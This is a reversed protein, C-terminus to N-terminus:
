RYKHEVPQYYKDGYESAQKSNKPGAPQQVLAVAIQFSEIHEMLFSAQKPTLRPVKKCLERVAKSKKAPKSLCESPSLGTSKCVLQMAKVVKECVKVGFDLQNANFSTERLKLFRKHRATFAFFLDLQNKDLSM